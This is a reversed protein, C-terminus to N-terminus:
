PDDAPHPSRDTIRRVHVRAQGAAVQNSGYRFASAADRIAAMGLGAVPPNQTEYSLEYTLGPKFGSKLRVSSPDAFSPSAMSARSSGSTARFSARPRLRARAFPSATAGTTCREGSSVHGHQLRRQVLVSAVAKDSIFPMRVWGKIPAGNETAIPASFGVLGKGPAIDFQWGVFVLTYGQKLLYADGFETETTFDTARTGRSFVSLLSKNGRNVVDFFLVGNGRAPDKPKIVFIDSSFEVRGQANRPAKDLDVIVRNHPNAPDVAFHITGSLTEYPGADGFSRGGLVDARNRIDVRTVEASAAAACLTAACCWRFSAPGVAGPM